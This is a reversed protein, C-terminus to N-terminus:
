SHPPSLFATSKASSFAASRMLLGGKGKGSAVQGHLILEQKAARYREDDWALANRLTINGVPSCDAPLLSLLIQSDPIDPM